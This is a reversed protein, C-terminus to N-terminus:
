GSPLSTTKPLISAQKSQLIAIDIQLMYFITLYFYFWNLRNFSKTFSYENVNGVIDGFFAQVLYFYLFGFLLMFVILATRNLLLGVYNALFYYIVFILAIQILNHPIALVMMVVFAGVPTNPSGHRLAGSKDLHISLAAMAAITCLAFSLFVKWWNQKSMDTDRFDVM